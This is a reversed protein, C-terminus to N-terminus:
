TDLTKEFGPDRTQAEMAAAKGLLPHTICTATRFLLVPCYITHTLTVIQNSSYIDICFLSRCVRDECTLFFFILWCLLIYCPTAPITRLDSNAACACKFASVKPVPSCSFLWWVFLSSMGYFKFEIQWRWRLQQLQKQRTPVFKTGAMRNM